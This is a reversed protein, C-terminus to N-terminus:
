EAPSADNRPMTTEVTHLAVAAHDLVGSLSRLWQAHTALALQGISLGYRAWVAGMEVVSEVIPRLAEQTSKAPSVPIESM